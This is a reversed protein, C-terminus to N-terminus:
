GAQVCSQQPHDPGALHGATRAPVELKGAHIEFLDWALTEPVCRIAHSGSKTATVWLGKVQVTEPYDLAFPFDAIPNNYADNAV